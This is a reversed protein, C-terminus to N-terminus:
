PAIWSFNTASFCNASKLHRGYGCRQWHKRPATFSSAKHLSLTSAIADDFFKRPLHIVHQSQSSFTRSAVPSAAMVMVPKQRFQDQFKVGRLFFDMSFANLRMGFSFYFYVSRRLKKQSGLTVQVLSDKDCSVNSNPKCTLFRRM